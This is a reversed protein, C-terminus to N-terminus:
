FFPALFEVMLKGDRPTGRVFASNRGGFSTTKGPLRVDLTNGQRNGCPVPTGWPIRTKVKSQVLHLRRRYKEFMRIILLTYAPLDIGRPAFYLDAQMAEKLTSPRLRPKKYRRSLRVHLLSPPQPCSSSDAAFRVCLLM